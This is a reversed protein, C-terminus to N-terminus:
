TALVVVLLMVMFAFQLWWAVSCALATASAARSDTSIAMLMKEMVPILM